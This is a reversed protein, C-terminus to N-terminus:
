AKTEKEPTRTPTTTGDPGLREILQDAIRALDAAKERLRPLRVPIVDSVHALPDRTPTVWPSSPEGPMVIERLTTLVEVQLSEIPTLPFFTRTGFAVPNGNELVLVSVTDYGIRDALRVRALPGDTDRLEGCGVEWELTLEDRRSLDALDAHFGVTEGAAALMRGGRGPLPGLIRVSALRLREIVNETIRGVVADHAAAIPWDTTAGQFVTGGRGTSYVGLTAAGNPLETSWPPELGALGLIAFGSPTGDRGTAVPTGYRVEFEAGDCEYGILPAAPNAGFVDGNSLGTGAYAWHEAHQVTYGLPPRSGNWWGGGRHTSVGTFRNEPDVLQWRDSPWTDEDKATPPVKACVIATDDDTFHIRWWAINGGFYAVNGGRSVHREVNSRM